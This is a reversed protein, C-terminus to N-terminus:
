KFTHILIIKKIFFPIKNVIDSSLLTLKSSINIFSPFIILMAEVISEYSKESILIKIIRALIVETLTYFHDVSNFKAVNILM